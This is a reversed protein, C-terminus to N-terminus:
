TEPDLDQFSLGPFQELVKSVFDLSDKRLTRAQELLKDENAAIRDEIKFQLDLDDKIFGLQKEASLEKFQRSEQELGLEFLLNGEQIARVREDEIQGAAIGPASIGQSRLELPMLERGTRLQNLKQKLETERATPTGAEMFNLRAARMEEILGGITDKETAEIEDVKKMAASLAEPDEKDAAERASALAQLKQAEFTNVQNVADQLEPSLAGKEQATGILTNTQDILSQLAPNTTKFTIAGPAPPTSAATAATTTAKEAPAGVAGAVPYQTFISERLALNNNDIFFQQRAPESSAVAGTSTRNPAAQMFQPVQVQPMVTGPKQPQPQPRQANFYTGVRDGFGRLGSLARGTYSRGFNFSSSLPNQFQFAM